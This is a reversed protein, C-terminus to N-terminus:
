YTLGLVVHVLRWHKKDDRRLELSAYVSSLWVRDEKLAIGSFALESELHPIYVIRGHDLLWQAEPQELPKAIQYKTALVHDIMDELGRVDNACVLLMAQAYIRVIEAFEPVARVVQGSCTAFEVVELNNCIAYGDSSAWRVPSKTELTWLRHGNRQTAVRGEVISM